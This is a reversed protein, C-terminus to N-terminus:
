SSSKKGRGLRSRAGGAPADDDRAESTATRPPMLAEEDVGEGEGSDPVVLEVVAGGQEGNSISVAGGHADVIRHVIALGLGTGANRTTFFPNFVRGMAEEPVGPGTDRVVIVAAEARRGNGGPLAVRRREAVVTVRREETGVGGEAAGEFAECGNRVVNTLAQALLPLDGNLRVSRLEAEDGDLRVGLRLAVDRSAELAPEIVHWATAEVARPTIERSFTLVDGVVANLRDVAGVIKRATLAQDAADGRATLDEVLVRAYLKISGLPNRVEHAIGAAMEGLAALQRARRLQKNAGRLESQLRAVEATLTEHATQLRTTVENFTRLLDGLDTPSIRANTTAGRTSGSVGDVGGGVTSPGM